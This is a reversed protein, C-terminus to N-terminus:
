AVPTLVCIVNQLYHRADIQAHLSVHELVATFIISFSKSILKKHHYPSNRLIFLIFIFSM